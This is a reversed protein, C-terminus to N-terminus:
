RLVEKMKEIAEEIIELSTAYSFRVYGEGHTGFNTGPCVGVGANRLILDSFEQSTFGTGTIDPFAYFAGEPLLCTIGPLGNLGKVIADRCIRLKAVEETIFSQGFKLASIGAYQIFPPFCSIITQLLLGMKEIVDKPGVAYGLRWGSMSYIKSFSGLLITRGKCGDNVSPSWHVAGYTIKGYTEDSLLYVDNRDAIAYITDADEPSMIAGTPNSPSNIVILRTKNTMRRDISQPIMRFRSKISLPVPVPKVGTCAMVANYTPFGPDPIIVEDGPNAICRTLFYIVANAPTILVQEREPRYGLTRYIDECIADRLEPIGMSNVYHTKGGLMRKHAEKTIFSPTDWAPDGIEFHLIREGSAELKNVEALLKFMPQGVLNQADKSLGKM